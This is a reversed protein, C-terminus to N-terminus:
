RLRVIIDEAALSSWTNKLARDLGCRVGFVKSQVVETELSPLVVPDGLHVDARRPDRWRLAGQLTDSSYDGYM